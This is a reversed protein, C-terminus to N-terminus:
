ALILAESLSKGINLSCNKSSGLIQQQLYRSLNLNLNIISNDLTEKKRGMQFLDNGLTKNTALWHQFNRELACEHSRWEHKYVMRVRQSLCDLCSHTCSIWVWVRATAPFDWVLIKTNQALQALSYQINQSQSVQVRPSKTFPLQLFCIAQGWIM